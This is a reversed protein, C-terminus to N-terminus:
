PAADVAEIVFPGARLLAEPTAGSGELEALTVARVGELTVATDMLAEYDATFAVPDLLETGTGDATKVLAGADDRKGHQEILKQRVAEVDKLADGSKRIAKAIAYSAKVNTIPLASLKLLGGPAQQSGIAIVLDRNTVSLPM